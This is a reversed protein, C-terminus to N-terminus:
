QRARVFAFNTDPAKRKLHSLKKCTNYKTFNLSHTFSKINNEVIKM